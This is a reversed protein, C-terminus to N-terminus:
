AAVLAEIHHVRVGEDVARVLQGLEAVGEVSNGLHQRFHLISLRLERQADHGELNDNTLWAGFRQRCTLWRARWWGCRCHSGDARRKM